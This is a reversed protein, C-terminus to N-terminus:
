AEKEKMKMYGSGTESKTPDHPAVRKDLTQTSLGRM